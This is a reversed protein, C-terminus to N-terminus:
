TTVEADRVARWERYHQQEADFFPKGDPCPLTDTCGFPCTDIHETRKFLSTIWRGWAAREPESLDSYRRGHTM